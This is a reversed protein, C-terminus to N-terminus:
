IAPNLMRLIRKEKKSWTSRPAVVQLLALPPQSLQGLYRHKYVHKSISWSTLPPTFPSLLKVIDFPNLIKAIIEKLHNM